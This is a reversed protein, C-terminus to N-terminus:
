TVIATTSPAATPPPMPSAAAAADDDRGAPGAERQGLRAEANRRGLDGGGRGAARRARRAGDRASRPPSSPRLRPARGRRSRRRRRRRAPRSVRPASRTWRASRARRWRRSWAARGPRGCQFKRPRHRAAAALKASARRPGSPRSPTAAKMSFRAGDQAFLAHACTKGGHEDGVAALDGAPDNAGRACLAQASDRDVAIGVGLGQVHTESVGRHSNTGGRRRFRIERDLVEDGRCLSSARFGDM